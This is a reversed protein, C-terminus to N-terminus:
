HDEGPEERLNVFDLGEAFLDQAPGSHVGHSNIPFDFLLFPAADDLPELRVRGSRYEDPLDVCGPGADGERRRVGANKVADIEVVGGVTLAQASNVPYPLPVSARVDM